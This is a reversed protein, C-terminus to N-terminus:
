LWVIIRFATNARSRLKLAVVVEIALLKSNAIQQLFLRIKVILSVQYVAHDKTPTHHTTELDVPLWFTSFKDNRRAHRQVAAPPFDNNTFVLAERKIFVILIITQVVILSRLSIPLADHLS